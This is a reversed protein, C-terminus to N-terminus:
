RRERVDQKLYEGLEAKLRQRAHFLNVRVNGESTELVVAADAVSLQEYAILVIVERQRPPLSSVKAAVLDCIESSAATSAPDRARSDIWGSEDRGEIENAENAAAAHRDRWANVIIRYLWTTFRARGAYTHWARAARVIADHLLDEADAPDGTLRVAFRGAAPLHQVMLRDFEERDV